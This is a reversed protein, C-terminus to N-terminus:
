FQPQASMEIKQCQASFTGMRGDISIIGSYRDLRIKPHTVFNVNASATIERDTQKLNTLKFWADEGGHIPPLLVRPLRIKGEGEVIDISVADAYGAHGVSVGQGWASGGANNHVSAFTTSEQLHSGGGACIVHLEGAAAPSSALLFGLVSSWVMAKMASAGSITEVICTQAVACNNVASLCEWLPFLGCVM